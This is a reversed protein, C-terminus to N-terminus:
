LFLDVRRLHMFNLRNTVDPQFEILKFRAYSLRVEYGDVGLSDM